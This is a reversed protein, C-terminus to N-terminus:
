KHETSTKDKAKSHFGFISRAFSRSTLKLIGKVGSRLENEENIKHKKNNLFLNIQYFFFFFFFFRFFFFFFFFVCLSCEQMNLKMILLLICPFKNRITGTSVMPKQAKNKITKIMFESVSSVTHQKETGLVWRYTLITYIIVHIVLFMAMHIVGLPLVFLSCDFSLLEFM